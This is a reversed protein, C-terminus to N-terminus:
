EGSDAFGLAQVITNLIEVPNAGKTRRLSKWQQEGVLGRIATTARGNESAELTDLTWQDRPLVEYTVGDWEFTPATGKVEAEVPDKAKTM